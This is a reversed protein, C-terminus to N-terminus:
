VAAAARSKRLLNRTNNLLDAIEFPKLLSPINNKELFARTDEDAVHAFTFLIKHALEPHKQSIWEYMSAVTMGGPMRGSMIVGDFSERQLRSKAEEANSVAVM